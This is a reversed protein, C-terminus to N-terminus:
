VELWEVNEWILPNKPVPLYKRSVWFAPIFPHVDMVFLEKSTFVFSASNQGM